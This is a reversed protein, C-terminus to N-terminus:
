LAGWCGGPAMATVAQGANIVPRSAAILAKVLDRVDDPDAGSKREKAPSYDIVDAPYEAGAVDGPIELLVPGHRGHRMQTFARRLMEPIREVMNVNASWKTIGQYHDVADFGPHVGLRSRAHGGPIILVPVSDAYAQAVGGFANEAGPGKQMCFVGIRDGKNIRSFGDAMNVGAREQRCIIPRIGERAAVDILSNAPFGSMWEVGELKLIRAIVTDGDM